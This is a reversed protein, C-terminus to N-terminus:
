RWTHPSHMSPIWVFLVESESGSTNEKDATRWMRTMEEAPAVIEVDTSERGARSGVGRSAHYRYRSM